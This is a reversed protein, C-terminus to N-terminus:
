SPYAVVTMDSDHRAPTSVGEINEQAALGQTGGLTEITGTAPGHTSPFEMGDPPTHVVDHSEPYAGDSLSSIHVNPLNEGCDNVQSGAGHGAGTIGLALGVPTHRSPVVM